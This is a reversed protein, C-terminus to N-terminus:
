DRSRYVRDAGPSGRGRGAIAAEGGGLAARLALGGPATGGVLFRRSDRGALFRDVRDDGHPVIRMDLPDNQSSLFEQSSFCASFNLGPFISRSRSPAPRWGGVTPEGSGRM